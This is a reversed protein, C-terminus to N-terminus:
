IVELVGDTLTTEYTQRIWWGNDIWFWPWWLSDLATADTNTATKAYIRLPRAVRPRLAGSQISGAIYRGRHRVTPLTYVAGVIVAMSRNNGSAMVVPPLAVARADAGSNQLADAKVPATYPTRLQPEALVTQAPIRVPWMKVAPRSAVSGTTGSHGLLDAAMYETLGSVISGVLRVPAVYEAKSCPKAKHQSVTGTTPNGANYAGWGLRVAPRADGRVAAEVGALYHGVGLSEPIPTGLSPTSIPLGVLQWEPSLVRLPRGTFTGSAKSWIRVPGTAVASKCRTMQTNIPLPIRVGELSMRVAKLAVASGSELAPILVVGAHHKPKRLVASGSAPSRFWYYGKMRKTRILEMNTYRTLYSNHRVRVRKTPIQDPMAKAGSESIHWVRAPLIGIAGLKAGAAGLWALLRANIGLEKAPKAVTM